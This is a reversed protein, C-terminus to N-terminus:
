SSSVAIGAMLSMETEDNFVYFLMAFTMNKYM